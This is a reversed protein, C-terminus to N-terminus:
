THLSQKSRAPSVAAPPPLSSIVSPPSATPSPNPSSPPTTNTTMKLSNPTQSNHTLHLDVHLLTPSQLTQSLRSLYTGTDTFDDDDELFNKEGDNVFEEDEVEELRVM